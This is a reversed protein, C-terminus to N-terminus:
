PEVVTTGFTEGTRLERHVAPVEDLGVRRRVIPDIRGDAFLRAARVVEDKTAYRSGHFSAEKVVYEKMQADFVRDHHTTLSVVQGGMAMSAFADRLTEVDGVTDVVVTPGTGYPTAEHVRSVFDDSSADVPTVTAPTADDVHALREPAVDAAVVHAGRLAALQSLHVGIRGAAGVVLVTDTDDVGTRECVHVPTALGDAAVAGAAFDTGDPLPLANAAPLVAYEAYAGDCNVGYWGEFETCRNTAGRRCHDCAGCVLYFYALIRDGVDLSVGDGVADVVGAFEHGPIRPTLAPDDALGGQVANEITRTVACARVDVRVEGPGPEPRDVREVSLDGGWEDLVVANM